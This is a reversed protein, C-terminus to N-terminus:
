CANLQMKSIRVVESVVPWGLVGSEGVCTLAFCICDCKWEFLGICFSIFSLTLQSLSFPSFLCRYCFVFVIHQQVIVYEYEVYMFVNTLTSVLLTLTRTHIPTQAHTRYSKCLM